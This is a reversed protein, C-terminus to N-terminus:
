KEDINDLTEKDVGSVMNGPNSKIKDYATMLVMTDQIVQFANICRGTEDFVLMEKLSKRGARATLKLSDDSKRVETHYSRRSNKGASTSGNGVIASGNGHPNRRKPLGSNGIGLRRECKAKILKHRRKSTLSSQNVRNFSASLILLLRSLTRANRAVISISFGRFSLSYFAYAVNVERVELVHLVISSTINVSM